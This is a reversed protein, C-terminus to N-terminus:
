KWNNPGSIKELFTGALPGTAEISEWQSIIAILRRDSQGRIGIGCFYHSRVLKQETELVHEIAESLSNGWGGLLEGHLSVNWFDEAL